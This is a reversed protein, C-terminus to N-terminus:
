LSNIGYVLTLSQLSHDAPPCFESLLTLAQSHLDVAPCHDLDVSSHAQCIAKSVTVDQSRCMLWATVEQDDLVLLHVDTPPMTMLIQVVKIKTVQNGLCSWSPKFCPAKQISRGEESFPLKGRTARRVFHKDQTQRM